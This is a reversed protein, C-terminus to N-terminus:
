MRKDRKKGKRLMMSAVEDQNTTGFHEQIERKSPQVLQGSRGHNEYKLIDFSEVVNALPVATSDKLYKEYSDNDVMLVFTPPHDNSTAGTNPTFIVQELPM